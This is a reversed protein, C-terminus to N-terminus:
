LFGRGSRLYRDLKIKFQDVTKCDIIDQTLLNWENVVRNAFSFKGIDTNFRSKFLKCNHGRLTGSSLTFLDHVNVVDFGNLMKFVEILDGRLRRTELTTIGLERLKDEYSINRTDFMRVIRGQVSELMKIDKQLHPRWAQICYELHPRVLSKYLQLIVGKSKFKFTRSIMGSVRNATKAAKVCQQSVKLDNQVIVGLDKEQKVVELIEGGLTYESNSNNRGFHM